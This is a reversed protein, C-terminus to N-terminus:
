DTAKDCNPSYLGGENNAIANDVTSSGGSGAYCCGCTCLNSEGGRVKKMQDKSLSNQNLKNLKLSKM